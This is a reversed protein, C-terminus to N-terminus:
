HFFIKIGIATTSVCFTLIRFLFQFLCYLVSFFEFTFSETLLHMHMIHHAQRSFVRWIGYRLEMWRKCLCMNMPIVFRATDISTLLKKFSAYNMTFATELFSKSLYHSIRFFELLNLLGLWRIISSVLRILKQLLITSHIQVIDLSAIQLFYHEFVFHRCCSLLYIFSTDVFVHLILLFSGFKHLLLQSLEVEMVAFLLKFLGKLFIFLLSIVIFVRRM